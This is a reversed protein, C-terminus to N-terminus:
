SPIVKIQVYRDLLESLRVPDIPKSVFDDMGAEFCAARDERTVNATVAILPLHRGKGEERRWERAVMLGDMEPMRM